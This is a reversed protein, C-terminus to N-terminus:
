SFLDSSNKIILRAPGYERKKSKEVRGGMSSVMLQMGYCIGILPIDLNFLEDSVRPSDKDWVSSPGGSLILARPNLRKIEKLPLNYPKIESYVGIERVRRAILQTYQSGFDIILVLERM